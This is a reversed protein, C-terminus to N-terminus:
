PVGSMKVVLVLVLILVLSRSWPGPGPGLVPVPVLDRVPNPVLVPYRIPGCVKIKCGGYDLWEDCLSDNVDTGSVCM